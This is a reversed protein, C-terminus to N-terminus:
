LQAPIPSHVLGNRGLDFEVMYLGVRSRGMICRIALNPSGIMLGGFTIVHVLRTIQWNQGKSGLHGQIDLDFEVM